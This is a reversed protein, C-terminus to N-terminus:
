KVSSVTFKVALRSLQCHIRNKAHVIPNPQDWCSSCEPACCDSFSPGFSEMALLIAADKPPNRLFADLVEVSIQAAFREMPILPQISQADLWVSEQSWVPSKEEKRVYTSPSASRQKLTWFTLFELFVFILQNSM